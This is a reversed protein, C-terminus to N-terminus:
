HMKEKILEPILCKEKKAFDFVVLVDRAIAVLEGQDNTMTHELAFSTNKAFEMKTEIHITGPFLLEKKFRCNTEAVMFGIKKTQYLNMLGIQEVYNLRAAQAYKHFAVNNVHGFVDLESWDIRLNLHTTLSM